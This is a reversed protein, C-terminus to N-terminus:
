RTVDPTWLSTRVVLLPVVLALGGIAQVLVLVVFMVCDVADVTAFTRASEFLRFELVREVRLPMNFAGVGGGLGGGGIRM